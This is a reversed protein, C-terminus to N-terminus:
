KLNRIAHIREELTPHTSFLSSEGKFERKNIDPNSIFLSSIGATSYEMENSNEHIKVLASILAELNKTLFVSGADAMYERKRSIFLETLKSVLPSILIFILGLIYLFEFNKPKDKSNIRSNLFFRGLIAIFGVMVSIITAIKIDENQIHSLEHALVCEIEGEDLLEILGTTVCIISNEKNRGTAFANLSNSDMIYLEPPNRFGTGISINKLLREYYKEKRSEAKRAKVSSLILKDSFYYTFFTTAFSIGGAVLFYIEVPMSSDTYRIIFFAITYIVVAFAIIVINTIIKNKKIDSSHIM